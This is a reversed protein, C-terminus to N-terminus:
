VSAASRAPGLSGPLGAPAPAPLTLAPSPPRAQRHAMSPESLGRFAGLPWLTDRLGPQGDAADWSGEGPPLGWSPPCLHVGPVALGQAAHGRCNLYCAPSLRGRKWPKSERRQGGPKSGVGAGGSMEGLCDYLCKLGPWRRLGQVTVCPVEHSDERHVTASGAEWSM